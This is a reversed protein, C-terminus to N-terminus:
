FTGSRKCMLSRVHSLVLVKIENSVYQERLYLVKGQNILNRLFPRIIITKSRFIDRQFFYYLTTNSLIFTGLRFGNGRSTVSTVLLNQHNPTFSTARSTFAIKQKM